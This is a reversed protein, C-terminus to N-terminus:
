RLLIEQAIKLRSYKLTLFHDLILSVCGHEGMGNGSFGSLIKGLPERCREVGFRWLIIQQAFLM